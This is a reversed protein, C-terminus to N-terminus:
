AEQSFLVHGISLGDCAALIRTQVADFFSRCLHIMLIVYNDRLVILLMERIGKSGHFAMLVVDDLEVHICGILHRDVLGELDFLIAMRNRQGRGFPVFHYILAGNVANRGILHLRVNGVHGLRRDIFDILVRIDGFIRMVAAIVARSSLCDLLEVRLIEEDQIRLRFLFLLVIVAGPASVKDDAEVGVHICVGEAQEARILLVSRIRELERLIHACILFELQNRPEALRNQAAISKVNSEGIDHVDAEEAAHIIQGRLVAALGHGHLQDHPIRLVGVDDLDSIGYCVGERRRLHRARLYRVNRSRM